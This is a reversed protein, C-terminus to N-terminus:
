STFFISYEYSPSVAINQGFGALSDGCSNIYWFWHAGTGLLGGNASLSASSGQCIVAPSISISTASLSNTNVNIEVSSLRNHQM